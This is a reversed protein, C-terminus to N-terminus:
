HRGSGSRIKALVPLAEASRLWRATSEPVLRCAAEIDGQQLAARVGSASVARGQHELRPLEVLGIGHDPLVAALAQNYARTVECFPETGVFRRRIGLAPAIRSAFLSADLRAQLAAAQSKQKLFYAPFTAASVCYADGSAVTVNALDATGEQVLRLRVAAPFSSREGALVLVLLRSCQEAARSILWRHGDTFPNCNVVVAADAQRGPLQGALAALWDEFAPRGQEMLSVGETTGTEVTTLCRFGMGAFVSRYAPKTYVFLRSLGRGEAEAIVAAVAKAAAGSNEWEPLSAVCKVVDGALSATAVALGADEVVVSLDLDTEVSLGLPRLFAALWALQGADVPEIIRTKTRFEDM